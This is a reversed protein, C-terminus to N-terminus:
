EFFCCNELMKLGGVKVFPSKQLIMIQRSKSLTVAHRQGGMSVEHFDVGSTLARNTPCDEPAPLGLAPEPSPEAPVLHDNPTLDNRDLM